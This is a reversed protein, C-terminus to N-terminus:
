RIDNKTDVFLLLNRETKLNIDHLILLNDSNIIIPEKREESLRDNEVEM